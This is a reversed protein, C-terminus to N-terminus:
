PGFCTSAGECHVATIKCWGYDTNGGAQMSHFTQEQMNKLSMCVWKVETNTIIKREAKKSCVWLFHSHMSHELQGCSLLVLDADNYLRGKEEEPNFKNDAWYDIYIARDVGQEDKFHVKFGAHGFWKLDV